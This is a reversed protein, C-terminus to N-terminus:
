RFRLAAIEVSIATRRQPATTATIREPAGASTGELVKGVDGQTRLRIPLATLFVLFWIVAFLVVASAISM